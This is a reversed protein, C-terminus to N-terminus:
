PLPPFFYGTGWESVIYEPAKPNKELKRRLRYMHTHLREEYAQELPWVRKLLFENTVTQGAHRWLLHLIKTETPTLSVKQGEVLLYQEAFNVQVREDLRALVQQQRRNTGLRHLVRRVRSTLEVMRLSGDEPKVIYDEAYQDLGAAVTSEEQEASLMMIPVDSFSHLRRCFEFGDMGPPMNIDVIALHPIGHKRVMRLAEEGSQATWVNYGEQRLVHGVLRLIVESDDVVLLHYAGDPELQTPLSPPLDTHNTM